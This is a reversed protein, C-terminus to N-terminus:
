RLGAEDEAEVAFRRLTRALAGHLESRVFLMDRLAEVPGGRALEYRLELAVRTRDGGAPGFEATRTGLFREEFVQTAFRRPGREPVKETVRGCGGPASEWVVKAGREPWDPSLHAIRALGEVFSPWRGVDSWLALARDPELAVTAAATM